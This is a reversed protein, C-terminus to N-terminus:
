INDGDLYERQDDESDDFEDDAEYGSENDPIYNNQLIQSPNVHDLTIQNYVFSDLIDGNESSFQQDPLAYVIEDDLRFYDFDDNDDLEDDEIYDNESVGIYNNELVEDVNVYDRNVQNYVVNDLFDGNESIVGQDPLVFLADDYDLYDDHADDFYEDDGDYGSERIDDDGDSSEIEVFHLIQRFSSLLQVYNPRSGCAFLEKFSQKRGTSFFFFVFSGFFIKRDSHIFRSDTLNVHPNGVHM